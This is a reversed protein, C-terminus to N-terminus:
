KCDNGVGCGYGIFFPQFAALLPDAARVGSHDTPDAPVLRRHFEPHLFGSLEWGLLCPFGGVPAMLQFLQHPGFKGLAGADLHLVPHLKQAAVLVGKHLGIQVACTLLGIQPGANELSFGDRSELGPLPLVANRVFVIQLHLVVHCNGAVLACVDGGQDSAVVEPPLEDVPIILQDFGQNLEFRVEPLVDM